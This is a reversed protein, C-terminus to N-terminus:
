CDDKKHTHGCRRWDYTDFVIVALSLTFLTWSIALFNFPMRVWHYHAYLMLGLAFTSIADLVVCQFCDRESADEMLM